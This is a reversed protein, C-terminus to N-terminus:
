RQVPYSSFNHISQVLFLNM